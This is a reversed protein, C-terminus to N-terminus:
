PSEQKGDIRWNGTMAKLPATDLALTQSFADTEVSHKRYQCRPTPESACVLQLATAKVSSIDPM